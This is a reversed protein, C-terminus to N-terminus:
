KSLRIATITSGIKAFAAQLDAVTAADYYNVPKSACKELIGKITPDTVSFAVAFISVGVAKIAECARATLTNASTADGQWVYPPAPYLTNAGDTMLVMIKQVGAGPAAGDAFPARNTLTRWGWMLGDPIFTENGVTMADIASTITASSNTLRTLASNCWTNRFAVVPNKADVVDNVEKDSSRLGVCGYWFYQERSPVCKNVGMEARVSYSTWPCAYPAGDSYCTSNHVVPDYYAEPPYDTYCYTSPRDIDESGTLWSAGKYKVGVNMYQAFPAVSMKVRNESDPTAFLTTTLNRAATKLGDIKAGSMSGTTDLVLAVEVNQGSGRMAQATVGIQVKSRGIIRDFMVPIDVSAYTTITGAADVTTSIAPNLGTASLFSSVATNQVVTKTAADPDGDDDGHCKGDSKRMGMESCHSTKKAAYTAANQVADTAGALVGADAAAQLKTRIRLANAYDIAAMLLLVAPVFTLAFIVATVGRRDGVFTHLRNRFASLAAAPRM